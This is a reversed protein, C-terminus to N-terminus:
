QKTNTDPPLLRCGGKTTQVLSCGFNNPLTIVPYGEARLEEVFKPVGMDARRYQPDQEAVEWMTDHFVVVGFQKMFPSFLEWDQKVGTYSHDGDIFLLDIPKDWNKAAEPSYSRICEYFGDLHLAKLNHHFTQYSDVANTDNWATPAHPDICFLKGKKNEALATAMFAASNGLASGIEVCVDPKLSKALAYLVWSTDGLGSPIYNRILKAPSPKVIHEEFLENRAARAANKLRSLFSM